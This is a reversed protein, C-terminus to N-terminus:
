EDEGFDLVVQTPVAPDGHILDYAAQLDRAPFRHSILSHFDVRRGLQLAMIAHDLRLRDWRHDLDRAVGSIQSGVLTIRNHHFEEGLALGAAAGQFFGAVVVRSNYATARIAEHLAEYAGSIEISVDAGRQGTLAKVAGAVDGGAELVHDAGFALARELRSKHRDVAIVTAGSAKALQTVMLGPVGQGFVAVVETLRLQADNVANLAISGIQAFIGAIPDLGDPLLRDRAWSAKAVHSSKHGWAGWVVDGIEMGAVESGREVVRGVEEYGMAPAPLTLSGGSDRFLRASRDWSKTLYPNSGRFLTLETGASIGSHLTRIRVEDPALDAEDYQTLGVKFPADITLQYGM